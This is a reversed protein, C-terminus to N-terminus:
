VIELNKECYSNRLGNDWLVIIKNFEGELSVITGEIDKPNYKDPVKSVFGLLRVRKGIKLNSM